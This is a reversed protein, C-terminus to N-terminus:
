RVLAHIQGILRASDGALEWLFRLERATPDNFCRSVAVESIGALRGLDRQTPRPLLRAESKHEASTMAYDRAAKVHDMMHKTLSEISATRKARKRISAAPSKASQSAPGPLNGEVYKTDFSISSNFWSVVMDLAVVNPPVKIRLDENPLMSPVFVISGRPFDADNIVKWADRRHLGRALYVSRSTRGWNAKGLRWVRHRVIENRAANLGTDLFLADIFRDLNVEWRKLREMPVRVPGYRCPTYAHVGGNIEIFVVDTLEGCETCSLVRSPEAPCLLGLEVLREVDGAPWSRVLDYDVSPTECYDARRLLTQLPTPESM